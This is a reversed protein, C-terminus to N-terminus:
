LEKWWGAEASKRESKARPAAGAGGVRKAGVGRVEKSGVRTVVTSLGSSVGKRGGGPPAQAAVRPRKSPPPKESDEDKVSPVGLVLKPPELKVGLTSSLYDTIPVPEFTSRKKVPESQTDDIESLLRAAKLAQAKLAHMKTSLGAEWEQRHLRYIAMTARADIVQQIDPGSSLSMVFGVYRHTSGWSSISV